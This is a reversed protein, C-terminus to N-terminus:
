GSLAELARAIRQLAEEIRAPPATFSLRLFGPAGFGTGPVAAVRAEELLYNALAIDDDLPIGKYSKGLFARMDPFAYFAGEPTACRVGPIAGLGKLMLQRRTDLARRMEEICEQPGTLAALAAAQSLAAPNSTSQGQLTAMGQIIERPAACFGIRFGTMAYCKSVGDILITRAAVEPSLTAIQTHRADGYVMTRYIDDSIILLNRRLCVEAIEELADRKAVAGTPNSPSALLVARTRPTCAADLATGSLSFGAEPSTKVFVPRGGALTVIEPYSVWYPVGIVVEDGPDLLAHLLNYLSHKAGCSVLINEQSLSLGRYATNLWDAVAGRLAPTGGVETYRTAGDDLAKHAAERIHPPTDFEPEGASLRIVDVGSRMLEAARATIDM